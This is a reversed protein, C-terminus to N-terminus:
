ARKEPQRAFRRNRAFCAIAMLGAGLFTVTAPEPVPSLAIDPVVTASGFSVRSYAYAYNRNSGFSNLCIVPDKVTCMALGGAAFMLVDLTDLQPGAVFESFSYDGTQTYTRGNVTASSTHLVTGPAYADTLADDGPQVVYESVLIGFNYTVTYGKIVFRGKPVFMM